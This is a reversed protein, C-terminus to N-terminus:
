QCETCGTQGSLATDSPLRLYWVLMLEGLGGVPRVFCGPLTPSPIAAIDSTTLTRPRGTWSAINIAACHGLIAPWSVRAQWMMLRTSPRQRRRQAELCSPWRCWYLAPSVWSSRTSLAAEARVNNAKIEEETPPDGSFDPSAIDMEDEAEISDVRPLPFPTEAYIVCACCM